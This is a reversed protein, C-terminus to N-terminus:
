EVVPIEGASNNYELRNLDVSSKDFAHGYLCYFSCQSPIWGNM